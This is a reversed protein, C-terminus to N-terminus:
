TSRPSRKTYQTMYRTAASHKDKTKLESAKERRMRRCHCHTNSTRGKLGHQRGEMWQINVDEKSHSHTRRETERPISAHGAEHTRNAGPIIPNPFHM